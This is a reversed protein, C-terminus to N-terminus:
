TENRNRLRRYLEEGGFAGDRDREIKQWSYETILQHRTTGNFGQDEEKREYKISLVKEPITM